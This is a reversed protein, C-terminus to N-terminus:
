QTMFYKYLFNYNRKDTLCILSMSLFWICYSQISNCSLTVNHKRQYVNGFNIIYKKRYLKLDHSVVNIDIIVVLKYM